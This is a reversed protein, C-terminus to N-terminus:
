LLVDMAGGGCRYKWWCRCRTGLRRAQYYLSRKFIKIGEARIVKQVLDQRKNGSLPRGGSIGQKGMGGGVMEQMM